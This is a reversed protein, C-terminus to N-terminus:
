GAEALSDRKTADNAVPGLGGESKTELIRNSLFAFVAQAALIETVGTLDLNPAVETIDFGVTNADKLIEMAELLQM